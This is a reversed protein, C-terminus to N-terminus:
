CNASRATIFTCLLFGAGYNDHAYCYQILSNSTDIDLDFGDGDQYKAQNRYSECLQITINRCSYAWLGAPGATANGAGGNDHAVCREILGGVVGGFVFGNGTNKTLTPDGYNDHFWCGRVIMNSIGGVAQAWTQGGANLNHHAECNEMLVTNFGYTDANWGYVEFGDWFNSVILNRFTVGAYQGNDSMAAVGAKTTLSAGLGTVM